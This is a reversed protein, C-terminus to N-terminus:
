KEIRRQVIQVNQVSEHRFIFFASNKQQQVVEDIIWSVRDLKNSWSTPRNWFDRLWWKTFWSRIPFIQQKEESGLDAMM